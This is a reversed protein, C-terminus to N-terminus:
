ANPNAQNYKQKVASIEAPQANKAPYWGKQAMKAYIESQMTLAENFAQTFASHVNPTSSEIAGHMLLDCEGKLNLLLNEMIEKDNM